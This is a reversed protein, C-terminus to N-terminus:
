CCHCGHDVGDGGSVEAVGAPGVEELDGIEEREGVPVVVEHGLTEVRVAVLVGGLKLQVPQSLQAGKKPVSAAAEEDSDLDFLLSSSAAPLAVGRRHSRPPFLQADRAIGM